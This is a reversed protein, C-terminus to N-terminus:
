RPLLVLGAERVPVRRTTLAIGTAILRDDTCGSAAEYRGVRNARFTLSEGLMERDNVELYPPARTGDELMGGELAMALEDLLLDRTESSTLWGPRKARKGTKEDYHVHHYLLRRPFGNRLLNSIVSHGHNNVEVAAFAGRYYRSVQEILRAYYEPRFFGHLAAVERCPDVELVKLAAPHNGAAPVGESCDAGLVYRGGERPRHWIKMEGGPMTRVELPARCNRLRVQVADADFFSVGALLFCTLDDEPYERRFRARLRRRTIRRWAVQEMTLHHTAVLHKEEEDLDARLAAAADPGALRVRLAEDHWWALFVRGWDNEGRKSAEWTTQLWDGVAGPSSEVVIEGLRAAEAAGAMWEDVDVEPPWFPTETIHLRSPTSGRGFSVAKAAGVRYISRSSKFRIARTSGYSQNEGRYRADMLKAIEFIEEAQEGTQAVTWVRQNRQTAVRRYQKGQERTTVGGKRAKVVLVHRYPISACAAEFMEDYRRQFGNRFFPREFKREDAIWLHREEWAADTAPIAAPV